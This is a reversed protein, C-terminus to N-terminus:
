IIEIAPHPPFLSSSSPPVLLFSSLCSPLLSSSSPRRFLSSSLSFIFFTKFLIFFSFTARPRMTSGRLRTLNRLSSKLLRELEIRKSIVCTHVKYSQFKKKKAMTVQYQLVHWVLFRHNAYRLRRYADLLPRFVVTSTLLWEAVM